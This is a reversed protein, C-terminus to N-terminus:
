TSSGRRRLASPELAFPGNPTGCVRYFAPCQLSGSRATLRSFNQAFDGGGGCCCARWDLLPQCFRSGSDRGDPPAFLGIALPFGHCSTLVIWFFGLLTGLPTKPKLAQM